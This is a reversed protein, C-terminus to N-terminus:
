HRVTTPGGVQEWLVDLSVGLVGALAAVTSFAPTAVQGGEVKRVTEPSLRSATAVELVSRTGRAQRLAAGLRRGRELDAPTLAPRAMM